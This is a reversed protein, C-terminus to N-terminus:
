IVRVFLKARGNRTSYITLLRVCLLMACIAAAAAAVAASTVAAFFFSSAIFAITKLDGYNPGNKNERNLM